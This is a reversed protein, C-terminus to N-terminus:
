SISAAQNGAVSQFATAHITATQGGQCRVGIKQFICHTFAMSENMQLETSENSTFAQVAPGNKDWSYWLSNPGKNRMVIRDMVGVPSWDLTQGGGDVDASRGVPRSAINQYKLEQLIAAQVEAATQTDTTAVPFDSPGPPKPFNAPQVGAIFPEDFDGFGNVRRSQVRRPAHGAARMLVDHPIDSNNM